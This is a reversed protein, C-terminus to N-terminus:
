LSVTFSISFLCFAFAAFISSPSNDSLLLLSLSLLVGVKLGVGGRFRDDDNLGFLSLILLLINLGVLPVTVEFDSRLNTKFSLSLLLHFIKFFLNNYQYRNCLLNENCFCLPCPCDNVLRSTLIASAICNVYCYSRCSLFASPGSCPFVHFPYFRRFVLSQCLCLFVCICFGYHFYLSIHARVFHM